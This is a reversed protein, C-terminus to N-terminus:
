KRLDWIKRKEDEIKDLERSKEKLVCYNCKQYEGKIGKLRPVTIKHRKLYAECPETPLKKITPSFNTLMRMSSSKENEQITCKILIKQKEIESLPKPSKRRLKSIMEERYLPDYNIFGKSNIFGKKKLEKKIIDKGFFEHLNNDFLPVYSKMRAKKSNTCDLVFKGERRDLYYQRVYKAIDGQNLKVIYFKLSSPLECDKVKFDLIRKIISVGALYSSYLTDIGKTKGAGNVFRSLFGGIFIHTYYDANEKLVRKYEEILDVNTHNIKPFPKIDYNLIISKGTSPVEILTIKSLNEEYLIAVKSNILSLQGGCCISNIFYSNVKNAEIDTNNKNKTNFTKYHQNFNMYASKTDIIFTDTLLYIKNINIMDDHSTFKETVDTYHIIINANHKTKLLTLFEIYDEIINFLFADTINTLYYDYSNCELEIKDLFSPAESKKLKIKMTKKDKSEQGLDFTKSEGNYLLTLTLKCTGKVSFLQTKKNLFLYNLENVANIMESINKEKEGFSPLKYCLYEIYSKHETARNLYLLTTLTPNTTTLFIKIWLAKADYLFSLDEIKSIKNFNIKYKTIDEQSLSLTYTLDVNGMALIRIITGEITATSKNKSNPKSHMM